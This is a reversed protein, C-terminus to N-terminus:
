RRRPAPLERYTAARLKAPLEADRITAADELVRIESKTDARVVVLTATERVKGGTDKSQSRIKGAIVSQGPESELTSETKLGDADLRYETRIRGSELVIPVVDLKLKDGLALSAPRGSLTILTPECLVKALDYQTLAKLFGKFQKSDGVGSSSTGEAVEWDFGLARLKTVSVEVVLLEVTVKPAKTAAPAAPEDARLPAALSVCLAAVFAPLALTHSM